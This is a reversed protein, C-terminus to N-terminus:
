IPWHHVDIFMITSVIHRIAILGSLTHNNAFLVYCSEWWLDNLHSVHILHSMTFTELLVNLLNRYFFIYIKWCGRNVKEQKDISAQCVGLFSTDFPCLFPGILDQNKQTLYSLSWWVMHLWSQSLVTPWISFVSNRNIFIMIFYSGRAAEIVVCSGM